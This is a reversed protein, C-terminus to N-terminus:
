KIPVQENTTAYAGGSGNTVAARGAATGSVFLGDVPVTVSHNRGDCTADVVNGGFFLGDEDLNVEIFGPSPSLCSYHLTVNVPGPDSVLTANGSFSITAAPANASARAVMLALALFAIVAVVPVLRGAALAVKSM